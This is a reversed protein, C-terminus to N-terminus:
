FAVIIQIGQKNAKTHPIDYFQRRFAPKQLHRLYISYLSTVQQDNRMTIVNKRLDKTM